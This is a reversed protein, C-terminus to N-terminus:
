ANEDVDKAVADVIFYHLINFAGLRIKEVQVGECTPLGGKDISVLDEHLNHIM